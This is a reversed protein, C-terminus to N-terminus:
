DNFETLSAWAATLCTKFDEELAEIDTQTRAQHIAETLRQKLGETIGNVQMLHAGQKIVHTCFSELSENRARAQIEKEFASKEDPTATGNQIALATRYRHLSMSLESEDQTNIAQQRQSRILHSLSSFAAAKARALNQNQSLFVPEPYGQANAKIQIGQANANLLTKRTQESIEVVDPPLTKHVDSDYFGGTTASYYLPM